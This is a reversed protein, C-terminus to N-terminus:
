GVHFIFHLILAAVVSAACFLLLSRWFSPWVEAKKALVEDQQDLHEELGDLRGHLRDESDKVATLFEARLGREKEDDRDRLLRETDRLDRRLNDLDDHTAYDSGAM